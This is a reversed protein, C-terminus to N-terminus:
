TTLRCKKKFCAIIIGNCLLCVRIDLYALYDVYNERRENEKACKKVIVKASARFFPLGFAVSNARQIETGRSFIYFEFIADCM